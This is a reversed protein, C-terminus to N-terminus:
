PSGRTRRSVQGVVSAVLTPLESPDTAIADPAAAELEERTGTGWTVAITRTGNAHGADVDHHRDGIMVVRAPDADPVLDALARALTITKPEAVLDAEPAHVATFHRLLDLRELIPRAFVGPKSTVVALPAMAALRELAAPIGPAVDTETLSVTAYHGRYRQICVELQDEAGTGALLEAVGIPLPPGIQARLEDVPRAPVGISELALNLCLSIARTSDVMCGDLDVMVAAPAVPPAADTRTVGTDAGSVGAESM